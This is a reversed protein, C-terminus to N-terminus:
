HRDDCTLQTLLRTLEVPSLLLQDSAFLNPPADCFFSQVVGQADTSTLIITHTSTAPPNTLADAPQAQMAAQAGASSDVAMALTTALALTAIWPWVV